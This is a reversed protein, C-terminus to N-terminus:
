QIGDKSNKMGFQYNIGIKYLETNLLKYISKRVEHHQLESDLFIKRAEKGSFILDKKGNRNVFIELNAKPWSYIMDVLASAIDGFPKADIHSLNTSFRLRTGGRKLKYIRFSGNTDEVAKKLLPIGLGVRRTKRSTVFPDIVGKDQIGKGNDSIICYFISNKIWLIIKVETSEAKISNEVIDFLHDAWNKM